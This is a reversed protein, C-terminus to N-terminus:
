AVTKVGICEPLLMMIFKAGDKGEFCGALLLVANPFVVIVCLGSLFIIDYLHQSM